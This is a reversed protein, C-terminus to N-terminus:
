QGVDPCPSICREWKHKRSLSLFQMLNEEFLLSTSPLQGDYSSCSHGYHSLVRKQEGVADLLPHTHSLIFVLYVINCTRHYNKDLM